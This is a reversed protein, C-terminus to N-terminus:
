QSCSFMSGDRGSHLFFIWANALTSSCLEQEEFLNQLSLVGDHYDWAVISSVSVCYRLYLAVALM